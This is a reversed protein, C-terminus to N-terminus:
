GTHSSHHLRKTNGQRDRLGKQWLGAQHRVRIHAHAVSCSGPAAKLGVGWAEAFALNSAYRCLALAQRALSHNDACWPM